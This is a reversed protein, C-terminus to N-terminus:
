LETISVIPYPLVRATERAAEENTATVTFTAEGFLSDRFTVNYTKM